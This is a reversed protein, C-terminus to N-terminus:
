VKTTGRPSEFPLERRGNGSGAEGPGSMVIKKPTLEVLAEYRTPDGRM